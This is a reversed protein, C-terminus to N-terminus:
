DATRGANTIIRILEPDTKGTLDITHMQELIIHLLGQLILKEFAAGTVLAKGDHMQIHTFKDQICGNYRVNEVDVYTKDKDDRDEFPLKSASVHATMPKRHAGSLTGELWQSHWAMAYEDM